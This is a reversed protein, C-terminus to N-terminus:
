LQLGLEGMLTLSREPVGGVMCGDNDRGRNVGRDGDAKTEVIGKRRPFSRSPTGPMRDTPPSTTESEAVEKGTKGGGSNQGAEDGKQETAAKAKLVAEHEGRETVAKAKLMTEHEDERVAKRWLMAAYEDTGNESSDGTWPTMDVSRRTSSSTTEYMGTSPDYYSDTSRSSM